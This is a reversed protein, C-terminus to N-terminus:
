LALTELNGGADILTVGRLGLAMAAARIEERGMLVFATSAADALTASAAEVTVTSWRPAQGQPGLIHSGGPFAMAAPSSTALAGDTLSRQGLRGAAPDEIGLRFPGGLAHFEGMDVLCRGLGARRCLAAVGDAAHGQAIGNLTLAQGPALEVRAGLRVRDLGIARRAPAPDQGTALAQWLPQVTPDFAGGTAAHVQAAVRLVARFRPSGPVFGRANLRTLESDAYLSFAAEVAAIEARIAALPLAGAATISLEAGFARGQWTEARAGSGALAAGAVIRLFRRRNM